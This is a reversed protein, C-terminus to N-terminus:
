EVGGGTRSYRRCTWFVLKALAVGVLFGVLAGAPQWLRLSQESPDVLWRGVLSAGVIAVALPLLFVLFVTGVLPAGQIPMEFKGTEPDAHEAVPCGHGEHCHNCSFWFRELFKM